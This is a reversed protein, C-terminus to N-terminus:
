RVVANEVADRADDSMTRHDASNEYAGQAAQENCCTQMCLLPAKDM